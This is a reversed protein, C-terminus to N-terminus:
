HLAPVLRGPHELGTGPPAHVILAGGSLNTSDPLTCINPDCSEVGWQLAGDAATCDSLTMVECSTGVCCAFWPSCPDPDCSAVEAQWLGAASTCDEETLVACEYGFCCAYERLPCPDPNCTEFEELADGDLAACEELTLLVCDSEFCCAYERLPCPNPNCTQIGALWDGNVAACEYLTLLQCEDDDCCAYLDGCAVPWAGIQGCSPNYDPACPSNSHLTYPEDPNYNLCFLPDESINGNIGIQDAICGWSSFVDCCTLMPNSGDECYIDGSFIITNTLTPSANDTCYMAGGSGASWNNSLTCNMLTPSSNSCYMAGGSGHLDWFDQAYNYAFTCSTLTPSANDACYMGGGASWSHNSSFRCNTLTPRANGTCYMGGGHVSTNGGLICNTLTPSANGICYMGAGDGTNGSFGCDTLVPSSDECWMGAGFGALNGTFVCGSIVPNSGTRCIMGGGHSGAENELFICNDITPSAADCLIAGGDYMYSSTLTVGRLVSGVAEGSQFLFGRHPNGSSGGCDVICTEPNGSQSRIEIAKGMYDVDRNGRGSFTGDTLEIIAGNFAGIVASQIDPYDGGGMPDVVYTDASASSLALVVVFSLLCRM